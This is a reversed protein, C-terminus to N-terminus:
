RCPKARVLIGESWRMGEASIAEGLLSGAVAAFRAPDGTTLYCVTAPQRGAYSLGHQALVRRTQRAIAPSPDIVTVGPGLYARIAQAAFPFHTCALALQDAGAEQLPPLKRDFLPRLSALDTQGNEVAQVLEPCVITAVRLHRAYREIVRAYLPGEATAATTLVGIVGSRTAAAAPKVAPEMGIFPMAPFRERLYLLSAASAANCAVVITKADNDLLFRTIAQVFARIEALPRPGYPLHAQDAVYIFSEGPLEQRLARLISLGGLGSDLVGIPGGPGLNVPEAASSVM